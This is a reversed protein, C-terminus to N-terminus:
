GGQLESVSHGYSAGEKLDIGKGTLSSTPLFSM